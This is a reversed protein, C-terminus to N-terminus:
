IEEQIDFDIGRRGRGRGAAWREGPTSGGWMGHKEDLGYEYCQDIVPCSLCLRRQPAYGGNDRFMYDLDTTACVAQDSWEPPLSLLSSGLSM